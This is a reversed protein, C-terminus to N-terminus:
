GGNRGKNAVIKMRKLSNAKTRLISEWRAKVKSAVSYELILSQINNYNQEISLDANHKFAMIKGLNEILVSDVDRTLLKGQPTDFADELALGKNINAAAAEKTDDSVSSEQFTNFDEESISERNM